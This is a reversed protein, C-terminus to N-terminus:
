LREADQRTVFGNLGTGLVSCPDIGKRNVIIWAVPHFTKTTGDPCEVHPEPKPPVKSGGCCGM